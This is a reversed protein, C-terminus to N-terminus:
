KKLQKRSWEVDEKITRITETPAMPPRKARVLAFSLGLVMLAWFAGAVILAAAWWPLVLGLAAAGGLAAFLLGLLGLVGGAALGAAAKVRALIATLMEEKALEVEKRMLTALDDGITRVLELTSPEGNMERQLKTM